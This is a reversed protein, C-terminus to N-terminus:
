VLIGFWVECMRIEVLRFRIVLIRIQRISSISNLGSSELALM